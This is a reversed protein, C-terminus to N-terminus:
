GLVGIRLIHCSKVHYTFLLLVLMSHASHCTSYTHLHDRQRLASLSSGPVDGDLAGPVPRVCQAVEEGAGGVLNVREREQVVLLADGVGRPVEGGTLVM